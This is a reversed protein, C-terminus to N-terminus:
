ENNIRSISANEVSAEVLDEIDIKAEETIMSDIAAKVEPHV